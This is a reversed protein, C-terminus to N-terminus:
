SSSTLKTVDSVAETKNASDVAESEVIIDSVDEVGFEAAMNDEVVCMCMVCHTVKDKTLLLTEFRPKFGFVPKLGFNLRFM